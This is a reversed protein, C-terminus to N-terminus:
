PRRLTAYGRLPYLHEISQSQRYYMDHVRIKQKNTGATGDYTLLFVHPMLEAITGDELYQGTLVIRKQQGKRLRVRTKELNKAFGSTHYGDIALEVTCDTLATISSTWLFHEGITHAFRGGTQLLHNSPSFGVNRYNSPRSSTTGRVDMVGGGSNGAVYDLNTNVFPTVFRPKLTPGPPRVYDDLYQNRLMNNNNKELIDALRTYRLGTRDILQRVELNTTHSGNNSHNAGIVLYRNASRPEAEDGEISVGKEPAIMSVIDGTKVYPNGFLEINFTKVPLAMAEVIHSGLKQAAATSQIWQSDVTLDKVGRSLTANRDEITILRESDEQLVRGYILLHQEVSNDPGFTIPDDGNIIADHRATNALRFKAGLPDHQYEVILSALDNSSYLQSYEAPKEADSFKIDWDRVEHAWSGFDDFFFQDNIANRVVREGGVTVYRNKRTYFFGNNLQDSFYAGTVKSLLGNDGDYMLSEDGRFAYLYEFEARTSGRSFVGYKGGNYGVTMKSKPILLSHAVAGDLLVHVRISNPDLMRTGLAQWTATNVVGTQTMNNLRQLRKVATLTKNGFVGDVVLKSNWLTNLGNQLAKVAEGRSNFRLTIKEWKKLDYQWRIKPNEEMIVGIDYFKDEVIGTYVGLSSDIYDRKQGNRVYIALENRKRGLAEVVKTTTLEIYIGNMNNGLGICIGAVGSGGTIKMKTGYFRPPYDQASGRSMVYWSNPDSGPRPTMKMLSQSFAIGGTYTSLKGGPWTYKCDYGNRNGLSHERVLTGEAGREYIRLRGSFRNKHALDVNIKDLEKRTEEDFIIKQETTGDAKHYEYVKGRYKMLEGDINVMGEWPWTQTSGSPLYVYHPADRKELTQTLPQARLVVDGEPEWVVEMKAVGSESIEAAKIEKYNITVKNTEMLEGEEVNIVNSLSEELDITSVITSPTNALADDYLGRLTRLRLNDYEDFYATIQTSRCIDELAEWVTSEPNSWYYNMSTANTVEDPTFRLSTFGVSDLLMYIVQIVSMGTHDTFFLPGPKRQQLISSSDKLNFTALMDSGTEPPTANMTLMRVWEKDVPPNDVDYVCTDVIMRIESSLLGYLPNLTDTFTNDRESDLLYRNDNFFMGDDNALTVAGVNSSVTGFPLVFSHDNVNFDAKYDSLIDSFDKTLMLAMEIINLRAGPLNMGWVNLQVAMIPMTPGDWIEDETWATGNYYLEIFGDDNPTVDTAITRWTFVGDGRDSLIRVASSTPMNSVSEANREDVTFDVGIRIKNGNLPRDYEVRPGAQELAYTVKNMSFNSFSIRRSAVHGDRHVRFKIRHAVASHDTVFNVTHTQIANPGLNLRKLSRAYVPANPTDSRVQELIVDVTALSQALVSFTMSHTTSPDLVFEKSIDSQPTTKLRNFDGSFQGTTIVVNSVNKGVWANDFAGPIATGIVGDPDAPDDPTWYKYQSDKSVTYFRGQQYEGNGTYSSIASTDPNEAWAKLAGRRRPRNGEVISSIPFFDEWNQRKPPIRTFTKTQPANRASVPKRYQGLPIVRELPAIPTGSSDVVWPVGGVMVVNPMGDPGLPIMTGDPTVLVEEDDQNTAVIDRGAVAVRVDDEHVRNGTHEYTPVYNGNIDILHGDNNVMVQLTTPNVPLNRGEADVYQMHLTPDSPAKYMLVQGPRSMVGVTKNYNWEARVRTESKLAAVSDVDYKSM